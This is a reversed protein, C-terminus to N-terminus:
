RNRIPKPSREGSDSDPYSGPEPHQRKGSRYSTIARGAHGPTVIARKPLHSPHKLAISGTVPHKWISMRENIYHLLLDSSLETIILPM